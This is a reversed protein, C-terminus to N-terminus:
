LSTSRQKKKIIDYVSSFLLLFPLSFRFVQIMHRVAVATVNEFVEIVDRFFCGVMTTYRGKVFYLTFSSRGLPASFCGRDPYSCNYLLFIKYLQPFCNVPQIAGKRAESRPSQWRLKNPLICCSRIPNDLRKERYSRRPIVRRQAFCRRIAKAACAINRYFIM